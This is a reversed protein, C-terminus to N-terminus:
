AVLRGFKIQVIECDNTKGELNHQRCWGEKISCYGSVKDKRKDYMPRRIYGCIHKHELALEQRLEYTVKQKKRPM